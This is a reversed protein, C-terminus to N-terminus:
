REEWGPVPYIPDAVKVDSPGVIKQEGNQLQITLPQLGVNNHYWDGENAFDIPGYFTDVKINELADVLQEREEESLPPVAGIEALAAAYVEGTAASAAETYDPMNGWRAEAAEVYEKTSGWLEDSYELDSTWVAGGFVYESATGLNNIFDPTTIGYHMLFAKPMFGLSKAAKIVEMHTQEHGGVALVDPNLEKIAGVLPTFDTGEPVIDYKVVELGLQEANAKFAEATAKSFADNVGIVAITKAGGEVENVLTSVPASGTLDVAPISGFTYKFKQKWILPSEASGTIMPVKYKELIPAVGLTVGSTYPGFLFDVEDTTVMREVADAGTAPDSAADAYVMEVKYQKDGIEIGGQANVTEAWLDYGRRTVNGGYVSAGSLSTIVGVKFYDREAEANKGDDSQKPGGCGSLLLSLSLLVVVMITWKTKFKM